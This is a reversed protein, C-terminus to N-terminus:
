IYKQRRKRTIEFVFALIIGLAIWSYGDMMPTKKEKVPVPNNITIKGSLPESYEKGDFARLELTHIGNLYKKTDVQVYWKYTGNATIWDTDDFRIQVRKVERTGKTVIGTVNYLGKVTENWTPTKLSIRPVIAPAVTINMDQVAEGGRGDSAKLRVTYNGAAEPTWNLQGTQGDLLVGSPSQVISLTLSDGDPDTATIQIKFATDVITSGSKANTFEPNRNPQIIIISFSYDIQARGDSVTANVSFNGPNQPTWDITGTSRNINMGEPYEVLWFTLADNDDDIIPIDWSYPVGVWGAPPTSNYEKPPRNPVIITFNQFIKFTGDEVTLSVNFVGGRDPVWQVLGSNKDVTMNFPHDPLYYMLVDGDGDESTAQYQYEEGSVAHGSPISTLVPPDPINRIIIKFSNSMAAFGWRDTANVLLEVVGTWNDNQPGSEADISVFRNSTLEV